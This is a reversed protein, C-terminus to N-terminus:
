ADLALAWGKLPGLRIRRPSRAPPIWRPMPIEPKANRPHTGM